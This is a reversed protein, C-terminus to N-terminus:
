LSTIVQCSSADPHTYGCGVSLLDGCVVTWAENVENENPKLKPRFIKESEIHGSQRKANIICKYSHWGKVAESLFYTGVVLKDHKMSKMYM